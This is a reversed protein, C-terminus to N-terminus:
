YASGYFHIRKGDHLVFAVPATGGDSPADELSGASEGVYLRAGPTLGSGYRMNIHRAITIAEGSSAAMLAIGDARAAALEADTPNLSDVQAGSSRMITGDANIYCVDGAAIAEGAYLGVITTNQPPLVSTLSPTGSKNITVM